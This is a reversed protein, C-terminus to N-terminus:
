KKEKNKIYRYISRRSIKLEEATRRADGGNESLKEMIIQRRFEELRAKFTRAPKEDLGLDEPGIQGNACNLYASRIIGELERVNGPYDYEVLHGL